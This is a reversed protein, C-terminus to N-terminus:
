VEDSVLMRKRCADDEVYRPFGTLASTQTRFPQNGGSYVKIYLSCLDGTAAFFEGDSQLRAVPCGAENYVSSEAIIYTTDRACTGRILELIHRCRKQRPPFRGPASDTRSTYVM